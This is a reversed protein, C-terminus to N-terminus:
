FCLFNLWQAWFEFNERGLLIKRYPSQFSPVNEQGFKLYFNGLTIFMNLFMEQKGQYLKRRTTMLHLKLVLELQPNVCLLFSLNSQVRCLPIVVEEEVPGDESWVPPFPPHVNTYYM